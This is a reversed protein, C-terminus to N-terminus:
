RQGLIGENKKIIHNAEEIFLKAKAIYGKIDKLSLTRM